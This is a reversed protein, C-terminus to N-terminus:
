ENIGWHHHSAQPPLELIGPLIATQAAAREQPDSALAASDKVAAAGPEVILSLSHQRAFETLEPMAQSALGGSQRNDFVALAADPVQRRLAWQHLWAIMEAPLSHARGVAFVVLHADAAEALAVDAAPSSRLMKMRWPHVDWRLGEEAWASAGLLMANAKAAAAFDDYIILAKM